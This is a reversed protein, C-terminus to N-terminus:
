KQAIPQAKREALALTVARAKAPDMSALIPATIREKM